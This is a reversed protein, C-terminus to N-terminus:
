ATRSERLAAVFESLSPGQAEGAKQDVAQKLDARIKEAIAEGGPNRSAVDAMKEISRSLVALDEASVRNKKIADVLKDVNGPRGLAYMGARDANLLGDAGKGGLSSVIGEKIADGFKKSLNDARSKAYEVDSVFSKTGAAGVKTMNSYRYDKNRNEASVTDMVDLMQGQSVGASGKLFDGLKQFDERANGSLQVGVAKGFDDAVGDAFAKKFVRVMADPDGQKQAVQYMGALEDGSLRHKALEPPLRGGLARSSVAMQEYRKASETVGKVLPALRTLEEEAGDIEQEARARREAQAEGHEEQARNFRGVLSEGAGAAALAAVAEATIPQNNEAAALANALAEAKQEGERRALPTGGQQSLRTAAEFENTLGLRLDETMALGAFEAESAQVEARAAALRAQQAKQQDQLGGLEGRREAARKAYLEPGSSEVWEKWNRANHLSKIGGIPSVAALAASKILGEKAALEPAGFFRNFSAAAGGRAIRSQITSQSREQAAAVRADMGKRWGTTYHGFGPVHFGTRRAFNAEAIKAYSGATYLAGRGVARAPKRFADVGREQFWRASGAMMGGGMVGLQSTMTMGGMLLAIAIIFSAFEQQSGLESVFLSTGEGETGAAGSAAVNLDAAIDGAGAVALSLWLFFAVFPGVVVYNGFMKWWQAYAGAAAGKPFASLFFALPSLVVLLWLMVIRGILILMMIAVAVSAILMMVAALVLSGVTSWTQTRADVAAEAREGILEWAGSVQFMQVFNGGAIASFGNVFTLMVVQSFDILLGCIVKSFNILVAMILLRPLMRKYSYEEVGLITGFAIVLMVLIFFMNTLDRVIVWGREVAEATAFGNYAAIDVLLEVLFTLLQTFVWGFFEAIAGVMQALGSELGTLEEAHAVGGVSLGLTVCGLLVPLRWSPGTVLWAAIRSFATRM